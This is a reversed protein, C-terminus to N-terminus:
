QHGGNKLSILANVIWGVLAAGAMGIWIVGSKWGKTTFMWDNIPKISDRLEDLKQFLQETMRDQKADRSDLRALLESRWSELAELRQALVDNDAMEVGFSIDM